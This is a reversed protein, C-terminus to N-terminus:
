KNSPASRGIDWAKYLTIYYEMGRAQEHLKPYHWWSYKAGIQVIDNGIEFGSSAGSLNFYDANRTRLRWNYAVFPGAMINHPLWFVDAQLKGWGMTSSGNQNGLDYAANGWTSFPLAKILDSKRWEKLSWYRFWSAFVSRDQSGNSLGTYHPWGFETGVDVHKFSLMAGLYPTYSNYYDKNMNRLRWNYKGYVQLPHGNGLRMIEIGQRLMGQTYAGDIGSTDRGSNIWVAGPYGAPSFAFGSAPPFVLLVFLM